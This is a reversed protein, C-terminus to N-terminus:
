RFLNKDDNSLTILYTVNLVEDKTTKDFTSIKIKKNDSNTFDTPLLEVTVAIERDEYMKTVTEIGTGHGFAAISPFFIILFLIIIIKKM